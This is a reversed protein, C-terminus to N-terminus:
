VQVVQDDLVAGGLCHEDALAVLSILPRGAL